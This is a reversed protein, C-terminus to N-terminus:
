CTCRRAAVRGSGALPLACPRERATERQGRAWLLGFYTEARWDSGEQACFQGVSEDSLPDLPLLVEEGLLGGLGAGLLDARLFPRLKFLIQVVLRM